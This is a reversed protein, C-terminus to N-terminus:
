HGGCSAPGTSPSPGMLFAQALSIRRPVRFGHIVVSYVGGQGSVANGLLESDESCLQRKKEVSASIAALNLGSGRNRKGVPARLHPFTCKLVQKVSVWYTHWMLRFPPFLQQFTYVLKRFM